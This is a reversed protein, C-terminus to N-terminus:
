GSGRAHRLRALLDALDAPLPAEFILLRNDAPHLFSLRFAHLAQRHFPVPPVPVAEYVYRREGVLPHGRLGAQVRIQNRKGTHLRIEVLSARGFAELVRYGSVADVGRPDDARAAKQILARRDWVLRDKWTGERPSPEGYLVARYVREPDRRRFQTKLAEQARAAKAFVVLGSTDLDIRHVVLPRRKGHSRLHNRILDYASVAGPRRELPVSLIGAPKNLVILDADEYLVHLDGTSFASARRSASGPRDIWVAVADGEVLRRSADSTTAEEANVFIKGRALADAVRGRSGLRDAAALFKDLRLGAQEAGVVWLPRSRSV